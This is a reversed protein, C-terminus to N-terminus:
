TKDGHTGTLVVGLCAFFEDAGWRAACKTEGKPDVVIVALEPIGGANKAVTIATQLYPLAKLLQARAEDLTPARTAGHPILLIRREEFPSM